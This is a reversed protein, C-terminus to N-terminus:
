FQKKTSVFMHVKYELAKSASTVYRNYENSPLKDKRTIISILGTQM